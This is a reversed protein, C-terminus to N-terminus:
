RFHIGNEINQYPHLRFTLHAPLGEVSLKSLKSTKAYNKHNLM